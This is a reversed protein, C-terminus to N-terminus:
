LCDSNCLSNRLWETEFHASFIPWNLEEKLDISQVKMSQLMVKSMEHM